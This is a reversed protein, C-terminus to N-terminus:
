LAGSGADTNSISSHQALVTKNQLTGDVNTRFARHDGKLSYYIFNDIDYSMVDQPDTGLYVM